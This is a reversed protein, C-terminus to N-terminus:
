VKQSGRPPSMTAQFQSCKRKNQLSEGRFHVKVQEVGGQNNAGGQNREGTARESWTNRRQNWNQHTASGFEILYFWQHIKLFHM